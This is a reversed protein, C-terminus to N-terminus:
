RSALAVKATRVQGSRDWSLNVEDGPQRSSIAAGLDEPAYVPRGDVSRIVDGAQIGAKEAPSGPTVDGVLLGGTGTARTSVGLFAGSAPTTSGAGSPNARIGDIVPKVKDISLAFGINQADGAVATNMGVVLGDSTVLPGGSNGPNIAADTQVLDDLSGGQDSIDRHLASVIGETVTLGGQLGLANGIALVGDGVKLDASRGLSVTPLNKADRIRLLAVDAGPVTGILDAPRATEEENLTVTISTAGEVVHANTLVEGDPTLIMGTGAGSEPFFRGLRSAQTRIFVVGPEVKALVGQIDQPTALSSSNFSPGATQVTSTDDVTNAGVVGGIVAGVLLALAAFVAALRRPVARRSGGPPVSAGAGPPIPPPPPLEFTPPGGHREFTPSGYEREPVTSAPQEATETTPTDPPPPEDFSPWARGARPTPETSPSVAHPATPTTEM